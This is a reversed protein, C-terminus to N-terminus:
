KHSAGKGGRLRPVIFRRYVDTLIYFIM